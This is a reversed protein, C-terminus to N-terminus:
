RGEPPRKLALIQLARKRYFWKYEPSKETVSADLRTKNFSSISVLRENAEANGSDESHMNNEKNYRKSGLSIYKM